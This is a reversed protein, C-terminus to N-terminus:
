RFCMEKQFRILLLMMLEWKKWEAKIVGTNPETIM